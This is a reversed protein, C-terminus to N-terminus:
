LKAYTVEMGSEYAEMIDVKENEPYYDPVSRGGCYYRGNNARNFNDILKFRDLIIKKRQEATLYNLVLDRYNKETLELNKELCEIKYLMQQKKDQSWNEDKLNVNSRIVHKVAM